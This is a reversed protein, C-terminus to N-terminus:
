SRAGSTVHPHEQNQVWRVIYSKLYAEQDSALGREHLMNEACVLPLDNSKLWQKYEVRMDKISGAM